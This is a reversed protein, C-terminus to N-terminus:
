CTLLAAAEQMSAGKELMAMAQVAGKFEGLFLTGCLKGKDFLLLRYNQKDADQRLLKEDGQNVFGASFLKVGCENYSLAAVPTKYIFQNDGAMAAGAAEGQAMAVNWLGAVRGEYEACDGCAYIHAQSTRMASDVQIGRGVSLGLAKALAINSRVGISVLVHDAEVFSGDTLQAGTATVMDVTRGTRIQIGAQELGSQVASSAVEDAQLALIRPSLEVLTVQHGRTNLAIAAEIGLIGGGVVLVRSSQPLDLLKQADEYTRLTQVPIGNPAAKVPNIPSAGTALCLDDYSLNEGSSLTVIRSAADIQTVSQGWRLDFGQKEYYDPQHLLISSLSAGEAILDSLSPRSYPFSEEQGILTIQCTHDRQRIAQACALGAAGTGIIVFRRQSGQPAGGTEEQSLLEFADEQAGCIPCVSPPTDGEFVQNCVTCKWQKM